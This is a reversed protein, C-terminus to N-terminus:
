RSMILSVFDIYLWYELICGTPLLTPWISTPLGPTKLEMGTRGKQLCMILPFLM